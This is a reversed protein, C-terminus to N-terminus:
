LHIVINRSVYAKSGGDWRCWLRGGDLSIPQSEFYIASFSLWEKLVKDLPSCIKIFGEQRFNRRLMTPM